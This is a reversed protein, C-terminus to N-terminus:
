YLAIAGSPPFIEDIRELVSTDLRHYAGANVTIQEASTAGAIVSAIPQQHLLWSFTLELPSIKQQEALDFYPELKEWPADRLIEPKSHVLRGHSEQGRRYKGTLLGNALPFYPLVGLGFHDAAPLVESEARRDLLNYHNQASIFGPVHAAAAVHHADAIQWGAFNSHGIYRVKGQSVLDSLAQLTEEIPTSLDPTHLQLLDIYDTGLRELSREVATILYRRSGRAGFDPGNAGRMDMGWKTAIVVEGRRHDLAQGLLTESLGPEAGYVDATDFFTVGAELAADVVATTGALDATATHPRGFNNCGLGIASVTLGSNGLRRLWSSEHSATNM